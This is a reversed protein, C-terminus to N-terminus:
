VRLITTLTLHTYSVTGSAIVADVAKREDEGLIPKAPPIFELTM